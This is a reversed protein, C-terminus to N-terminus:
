IPEDSLYLCNEANKEALEPDSAIEAADTKFMRLDSSQKADNKAYESDFKNYLELYETQDTQSM